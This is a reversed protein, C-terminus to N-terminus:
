GVQKADFFVPTRVYQAISNLLMYFFQVGEPSTLMVAKNGIVATSQAFLYQTAVPNIRQAVPDFEYIKNTSEKSIWLREPKGSTGNYVGYCTGTTFTETIPHIPLTTWTNAVLDYYYVTASVNARFLVLRDIFGSAGPLWCLLPCVGTVAPIAALAPNGANASTTSWANSSLTYRYMQTSANGVVYMHDYWPATDANNIAATLPAVTISTAAAAAAATLVAYKPSSNTGFNLIAGIPLATPLATVSVSTAGIAAGASATITALVGSHYGGNNLNIKPSPFAIYGDTGFTAAFSVVSLATWVNTAIDYKHFTPAGTGSSLILYVSGMVTGSSTAPWQGGVMKTYRMCTGAGFTGGPPSALQQWTDSWTDYRWFSSASFLTYICRDNDDTSCCGTAPTVPPPTLQEWIPRDIMRLNNNTVTAM